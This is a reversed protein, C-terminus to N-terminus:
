NKQNVTFTQGAITIAGSRDNKGQPAAASWSVSGNGSGSSGSAVTLWGTNSSATWGCGSGTSVTITGTAAGKIEASTPSISYSCSVPAASQSV